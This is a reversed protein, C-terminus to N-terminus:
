PREKIKPNGVFAGFTEDFGVQGDAVAAAMRHVKTKMVTDSEMLHAIQQYGGVFKNDVFVQPYDKKLVSSGIAKGSVQWLANRVRARAPLAGDIVTYGVNMGDLLAELAKCNEKVTKSVAVSTTLLVCTGRFEELPTKALEEDAASEEAFVELQRSLTAMQREAEEDGGGRRSMREHSAVVQQLGDLQAELGLATCEDRLGLREDLKEPQSILINLLGLSTAVVCLRARYLASAAGDPSTPPPPTAIYTAHCVGVLVSLRGADGGIAAAQACVKLVAARGASSYYAVALLLPLPGAGLKASTSPHDRLPAICAALATLMELAPADRPEDQSASLGFEDRLRALDARSGILVEMGLEGM